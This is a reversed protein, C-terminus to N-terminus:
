LHTSVPFLSEAACSATGSADYMVVLSLVLAIAFLSSDSGKLVGISTALAVVQLVPRAALEPLGAFARQGSKLPPRSPAPGVVLTSTNASVLIPLMCYSGAHLSLWGTCAWSQMSSMHLQSQLTERLSCALFAPPMSEMVIHHTDACSSPHKCASHTSFPCRM